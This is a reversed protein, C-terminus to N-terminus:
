GVTFHRDLIKLLSLMRLCVDIQIPAVYTHFSTQYCLLTEQVPIVACPISLHSM